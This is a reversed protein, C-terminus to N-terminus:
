NVYTEFDAEQYFGIMTLHMLVLIFNLENACRYSIKLTNSELSEACFAFIEDWADNLASEENVFLLVSTKDKCAM